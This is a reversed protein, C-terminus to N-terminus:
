KVLEAVKEEDIVPEDRIKEMWDKIDIRKEYVKKGSRKATYTRDTREDEAFKPLIVYAEDLGEETKDGYEHMYFGVQYLDSVSVEQKYKIDIEKRVYNCRTCQIILDPRMKKEGADEIDWAKEEKQEKVETREEKCYGCTGDLKRPHLDRMMRSVFKEFIQYMPVFVPNINRSSGHYIDSIGSGDLIIDCTDHIQKYHENQRNYMMKMKDRQAKTVTEKSVLGSMQQIQRFARSRVQRGVENNKMARECTLLSQLIIRNETNDYELEDYECFFQMKLMSDNAMQNKMILKGRLSNVNEAHTVYSKLLGRRLLDEVQRTLVLGYHERLTPMESMDSYIRHAEAINKEKVGDAYDIMEPLIKADEDDGKNFIRPIIQITFESFEATGVFKSAAVEYHKDGKQRIKLYKRDDLWTELEKDRSTTRKAYWEEFEKGQTDESTTWTEHEYLSKVRM